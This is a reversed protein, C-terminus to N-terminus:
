NLHKKEKIFTEKVEEEDKHLNATNTNEYAFSLEELATNLDKIAESQKCIVNTQIEIKQALFKMVLELNEIKNQLTQNDFQKLRNTLEESDASVVSITINSEETESEVGLWKLLRKFMNM